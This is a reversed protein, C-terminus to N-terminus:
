GGLIGTVNNDSPQQRLVPWLFKDGDKEHILIVIRTDGAAVDVEKDRRIVTLSSFYAGQRLNSKYKNASTKFSFNSM